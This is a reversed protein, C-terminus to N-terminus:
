LQKKDTGGSTRRKRSATKLSAKRDLLLMARKMDAAPVNVPEVAARPFVMAFIYPDHHALLVLGFKQPEIVLAKAFDAARAAPLNM